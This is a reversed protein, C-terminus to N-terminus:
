APCWPADGPYGWADEQLVRLMRQMVRLMRWLMGLVMRIVGLMGLMVEPVASCGRSLRFCGQLKGERSVRLMGWGVGDSGDRCRLSISLTISKEQESGNYELYSSLQSIFAPSRCPKPCGSCCSRSSASNRPPLPLAPAGQQSQMGRGPVWCGRRQGAARPQPDPLAWSPPPSTFGLAGQADRPPPPPFGCLSAGNSEWRERADGPRCGM